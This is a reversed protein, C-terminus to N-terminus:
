GQSRRMPAPVDVGASRIADRVKHGLEMFERARQRVPDKDDWVAEFDRKGVRRLYRLLLVAEDRSLDVTIRVKDQPETM